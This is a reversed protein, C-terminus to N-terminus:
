EAFKISGCGNEEVQTGIVLEICYRGDAADRATLRWEQGAWRGVAVTQGGRLAAGSGPVVTALGVLVVLMAVCHRM